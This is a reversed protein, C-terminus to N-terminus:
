LLVVVPTPESGEHIRVARHCLGGGTPGGIVMTSHCPSQGGTGTVVVYVHCQPKVKVTM